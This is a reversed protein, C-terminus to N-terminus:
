VFLNCNLKLWCLNIIFTHTIRWWWLCAFSILLFAITSLHAEITCSHTFSLFWWLFTTKVSVPQTTRPWLSVVIAIHRFINYILVEVLGSFFLLLAGIFCNFDSLCDGGLLIEEVWHYLYRWPALLWVSDHLWLSATLSIWFSERPSWGVDSLLLLNLRDALEHWLHIALNILILLCNWLWAIQQLDVWKWLTFRLALSWARWLKLHLWIIHLLYLFIM